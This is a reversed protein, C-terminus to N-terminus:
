LEDGEKSKNIKELLIAKEKEFEEESIIGKKM